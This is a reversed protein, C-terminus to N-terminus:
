NVPVRETLEQFWHLVVNIHLTQGSVGAPAAPIRIMVFGEGDPTVDYNTAGPGAKLDYPGEFLMTPRGLSPEPGASITVAMMQEGNRYFLERGDRSWMPETGGETSIQWKGGTPFRTVYIEDRDSENSVYALWRDEPSLKPTHEHFSTELLMEPEGAGELRVSGIDFNQGAGGQRFVLTQGDSTIAAPYVGVPSNTVQQAPGSGDAPKSFINYVGARISGFFVTRGDPSWLPRLGDGFTLRTLTGRSLDLIWVDQDTGGAPGMRRVALRQGDPSFRPSEWDGLTDTVPSANGERDVRVLERSVEEFSSAGPVYVLSGSDSISFNAAGSSKVSVGEVLPVPSGTVTLSAADFPVARVSGDEAAYVLHGTSVYHPSVGALGLRTVKGTTLDLVALQGNTLPLNNVSVVVFVVADRGPIIFPWLHSTEGQETDLTTLAEPEGGGSSM